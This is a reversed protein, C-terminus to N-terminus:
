QQSDDDMLHLYHGVSAHMSEKYHGRCHKCVCSCQEVNVCAHVAFVFVPLPVICFHVHLWDLNYPCGRM